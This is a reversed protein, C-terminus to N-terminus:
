GGLTRAIRYVLFISCLSAAINFYLGAALSPGTVRFLLSLLFPYGIVHPFQAIYGAYGSASLGGKTLLEAVQYYTQYDSSPDIPLTKVAWVRLAAAILLTLGAAIREAILLRRTKGKWFFAFKEWSALRAAAFVACLAAAFALIAASSWLFPYPKGAGLDTVGCFLAYVACVEFLVLILVTFPTKRITM